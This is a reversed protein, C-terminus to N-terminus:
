VIRVMEARVSDVFYPSREKTSKQELSQLTILDIEKEVADRMDEYLGAMDFMSRVKSGNRDVLLDVDSNETAINKAYSGFLYVANLGYKQAIPTVRAKIDNLTYIM